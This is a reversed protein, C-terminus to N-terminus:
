PSEVKCLQSYQHLLPHWATGEADAAPGSTVTPGRPCGYPLLAPCPTSSSRSDMRVFQFGCRDGLAEWTLATPSRCCFSTGTAMSGCVSRALVTFSFSSVSLLQFLQEDLFGNSIEALEGKKALPIIKWSDHHRPGYVSRILMYYVAAGESRGRLDPAFKEQSLSWDLVM